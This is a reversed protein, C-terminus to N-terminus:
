PATDPYRVEDGDLVIHNARALENILNEAEPQRFRTWSCVANILTQRRTPRNHTMKGLNALVTAIQPALDNESNESEEQSMEPLMDAAPANEVMVHDALTELPTAPAASVAPASVEPNSYSVIDNEVAIIGRECLREIINDGIVANWTNHLLPEIQSRILATLDDMCPPMQQRVAEILRNEWDAAQFHYTLVGDQERILALEQLREALKALCQKRTPKALAKLDGRLLKKLCKRLAEHDSPQEADPQLFYGVAKKLFLDTLKDDLVLLSLDADSSPQKAFAAQFQAKSEDPLEALHWKGRSLITIKAEPDDFAIRSVYFNLYFNLANKGGRDMRIFRVDAGIRCLLEALPLAIDKRTAGFFLWVRCGNEYVRELDAVKLGDLDVLIHKM